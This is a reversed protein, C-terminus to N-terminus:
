GTGDTEPLQRLVRFFYEPCLRCMKWIFSLVPVNRRPSMHSFEHPQDDWMYSEVYRNKGDIFIHYNEPECPFKHYVTDYEYRGDDERSIKYNAPLGGGQDILWMRTWRPIFGTKWAWHARMAVGRPSAEGLCKLVSEETTGLGEAWSEDFELGLNIDSAEPLHFFPLTTLLVDWRLSVSAALDEHAFRLCIIDRQSSVKVYVRQGQHHTMVMDSYKLPRNPARQFHQLRAAWSEKCATLIGADWLYLFRNAETWFCTRQLSKLLPRKWQRGNPSSAITKSPKPLYARMMLQLHSQRYGDHDTNFLSYYHIKPTEDTCIAMQWIKWRVEPPLKSFVHFHIPSEPTDAENSLFSTM